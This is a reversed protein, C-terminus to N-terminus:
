QGRRRPTPPKCGLLLGCGPLTPAIIASGLSAPAPAPATPADATRAECPENTGDPKICAHPYAFITRVPGQFEPVMVPENAFIKRGSEHDIWGNCHGVEHRMVLNPHYGAARLVDNKVRYIICRLRDKTGLACALGSWHPDTIKSCLERVDKKEAAIWIIADGRYAVDYQAPPLTTMLRSKQANAIGTSALILMCLALSFTRM